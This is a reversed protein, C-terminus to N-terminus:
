LVFPPMRDKLKSIAAFQAIHNRRQIQYFDIDTYFITALREIKEENLDGDPSHYDCQQDDTNSPLYVDTYVTSKESPLLPTISVIPLSSVSSRERSPPEVLAYPDDSSNKDKDNYTSQSRSISKTPNTQITEDIFTASSPSGLLYTTTQGPFNEDFFIISGNSARIHGSINDGINNTSLSLTRFIHSSSSSSLINDYSFLNSPQEQSSISLLSHESNLRHNLISGDSVYNTQNTLLSNNNFTVIGYSLLLSQHPDSHSTSQYCSSFLFFKM